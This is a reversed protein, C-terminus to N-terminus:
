EMVSPMVPTNTPLLPRTAQTCSVIDSIEETIILAYFICCTIAVIHQLIKYNKGMKGHWAKTTQYNSQIILVYVLIYSM